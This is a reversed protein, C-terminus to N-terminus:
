ALRSSAILAARELDGPHTIKLNDPHGEVIRVELASYREVTEATDFGEFGAAEARRYAEILDAARFAQPTQVRRHDAPDLRTGKRFVPVGLPLGPVAGGYAAATQLVRAVLGATALPRAADHVAIVDLHNGAVAAIGNSESRHRTSGGDVVTVASPAVILDIRDRDEPRGVVVVEVVGEAALFLDVSWALVPRGALELFVKNDQHGLRTGSGGALM